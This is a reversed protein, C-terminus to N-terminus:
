SPRTRSWCSSFALGRGVMGPSSPTRPFGDLIFGAAADPKKLREALMGIIMEDPVLAGSAMIPAARRGLETGETIADRLMDGTSVHPIGFRAALRQAQTGKGSGPPGIFILRL